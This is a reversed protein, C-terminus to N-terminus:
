VFSRYRRLNKNMTAHFSKSLPLIEDRSFFQLISAYPDVIGLSTVVAPLTPSYAIFLVTRKIKKEKRAIVHLKFASQSGEISCSAPAGRM